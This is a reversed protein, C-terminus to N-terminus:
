MVVGLFLLCVVVVCSVVVDSIQENQSFIDDVKKEINGNTPQSPQPNRRRCRGKLEDLVVELTEHIEKMTPRDRAEISVCKEMLEIVAPPSRQRGAEGMRQKPDLRVDIKMREQLVNGEDIWDFPERRGFLEWLLCGFHFFM